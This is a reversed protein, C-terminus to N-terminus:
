VTAPQVWGFTRSRCPLAEPCTQLLEPRQQSDGLDHFVQRHVVVLGSQTAQDAGGVDDNQRVVEGFLDGGADEGRRYGGANGEDRRGERVGDFQEGVAGAGGTGWRSGAASAAPMRRIRM